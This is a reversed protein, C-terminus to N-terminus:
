SHWFRYFKMSFGAFSIKFGCNQLIGSLSECLFHEYEQLLFEDAIHVDRVAATEDSPKAGRLINQESNEGRMEELVSSYKVCKESVKERVTFRICTSSSRITCEGVFKENVTRKEIVLFAVHEKNEALVRIKSSLCAPLTGERM